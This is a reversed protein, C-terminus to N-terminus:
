RVPSRRRSPREYPVNGIIIDEIRFMNSKKAEVIRRQAPTMEFERDFFHQLEARIDFAGPVTRVRRGAKRRSDAVLYWAEAIAEHFDGHFAQGVPCFTYKSWTPHADKAACQECAPLRKAPDGEIHLRYLKFRAAAKRYWEEVRRSYGAQTLAPTHLAIAEVGAQSWHVGFTPSSCVNM